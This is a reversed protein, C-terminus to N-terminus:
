PWAKWTVDSSFDQGGLFNGWRSTSTVGPQSYIFALPNRPLGASSMSLPLATYMENRMTNGMRADATSLQPPTDSVTVQETTAGVKLTLNLGVIGLADVIVREQVLTQFGDASASVTYDGPPLPAISYVGAGTTQRTTRVGTAVNAATVTAGPIVAGTPDSVTGQISGSGGIQATLASGAMIAVLLARWHRTYM